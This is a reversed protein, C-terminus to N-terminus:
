RLVATSHHGTPLTRDPDLDADPQTGTADDERLRALRLALQWCIAALRASIDGLLTVLTVTDVGDDTAPRSETEDASRGGARTAEFEEVLRRVKVIHDPDSEDRLRM